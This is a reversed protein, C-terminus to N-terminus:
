AQDLGIWCLGVYLLISWYEMHIHLALELVGPWRPFSSSLFTPIIDWWYMLQWQPGMWGTQPFVMPIRKGIGREGM